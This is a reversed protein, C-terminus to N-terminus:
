EGESEKSARAGSEVISWGMTLQLRVAMESDMWIFHRKSMEILVGYEDGMKHPYACPKTEGDYLKWVLNNESDADLHDAMTRLRESLVTGDPARPENKDMKIENAM